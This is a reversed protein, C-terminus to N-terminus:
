NCDKILIQSNNNNNDDIYKKNTQLHVKRKIM